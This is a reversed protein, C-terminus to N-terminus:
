EEISRSLHQEVFHSVARNYASPNDLNPLHGAGAIIARQANPIAACFGDGMRRRAADFEGNLVLTSVRIEGPHVPLPTAHESAPNNLLDGGCYRAVMSHLLARSWGQPAHLRMLPHELWENRFAGIGQTAILERFYQISFEPKAGGGSDDLPVGDLVLCAVREELSVAACMAVRAGQSMGVLAVRELGLYDLLKTLDRVDCVLSATGDSAGFGRRDMRVIRFADRLANAQPRWMELDLTWGHIFVIPFGYGEDRFRLRAGPASMFRENMSKRIAFHM